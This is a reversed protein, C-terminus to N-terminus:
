GLLYKESEKPMFKEVEIKNELNFNPGYEVVDKLKAKSVYRLIISAAIKIENIDPFVKYNLVGLPGKINAAKIVTEDKILNSLVDNEISNRGIILKLNNSVRFHRGVKLFEIFGKKYMNNEILDKLKVSFGRDTLLCGGGPTEIEKLNYKEAMELQRKRSRGQIDLMDDKKVWGERVPLTDQLLKQSLPRVILDKIQSLKAVSNLADKRQSMPRQGLVEGSIIFDANYYSLLEGAKKFMLGHCDICPNMNKGYGYRPALLMEMHEDTINHVRLNIRNVKASKLAKQPGFFATEFFVPVVEYGLKEMHVVSLVSDLGGSFLSIAKYKKNM